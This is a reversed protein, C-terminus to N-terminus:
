MKIKAAIVNALGNTFAAREYVVRFVCRRKFHDDKFLQSSVIGPVAQLSCGLENVKKANANVDVGWPRPYLFQVLGIKLTDNGLSTLQTAAWKAADKAVIDRFQAKAAERGLKRGPSPYNMIASAFLRTGAADKLSYKVQCDLRYFEGTVAVEKFSPEFQLVFDVEGNLVVTAGSGALAGGVVQAFDGGFAQEPGVSQVRLRFLRAKEPLESLEVIGNETTVEVSEKEQSVNGMTVVARESGGSVIEKDEPRVHVETITTCGSVICCVVAGFLLRIEKKM